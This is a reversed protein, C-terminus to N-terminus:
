GGAESGSPAVAPEAPPQKSAAERDKAEQLLEVDVMGFEASVEYPTRGFDLDDEVDLDNAEEFSEQGEMQAKLALEQRIFAQIQAARSAPLRLRTPVSVPTDDPVEYGRENLM